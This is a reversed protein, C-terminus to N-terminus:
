REQWTRWYAVRAGTALTVWDERTVRLGEIPLVQVWMRWAVPLGDAGVEWLYADGPTVAAELWQSPPRDLGVQRNWVACGRLAFGTGFRSM